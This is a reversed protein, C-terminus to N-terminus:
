TLKIIIFPEKEFARYIHIEIPNTDELIEYVIWGQKEEEPRLSMLYWSAKTEYLCGKDVKMEKIDVSSFGTVEEIGINRKTINVVVLKYGEDAEVHHSSWWGRTFEYRLATERTTWMTTFVVEVEGLKVEVGLPIILTKPPRM